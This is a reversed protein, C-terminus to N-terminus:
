ILGAKTLINNITTEDLETINVLLSISLGNKFGKIVVEHKENLKGKIEGKIEGELKWQEALTVM